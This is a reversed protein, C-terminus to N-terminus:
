GGQVVGNARSNVTLARATGIIDIGFHEFFRRDETAIVAHILNPPLEDFPVADDHRIGRRGVEQGYKDLFTVALDQKKLWDESTLDFAPIALALMFLGGATFGECGAEVLVRKFGSVRFRETFLAFREYAAGLRRGGGWMGSDVISDVDLLVRSARAVFISRRARELDARRAAIWPRRRELWAATGDIWPGILWRTFSFSRKKM